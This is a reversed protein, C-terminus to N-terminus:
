SARASEFAIKWRDRDRKWVTTYCGESRVAGTPRDLELWFRGEEVVTEGFARLGTSEIVADIVRAHELSDRTARELAIRGALNTGSPTISLADEFFHAAYSNADGARIAERM